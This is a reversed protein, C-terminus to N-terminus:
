FDFLKPTQPPNAAAAATMLPHRLRFKYLLSAREQKLIEGQTVTIGFGARRGFDIGQLTKAVLEAFLIRSKSKLLSYFLDETYPINATKAIDYIASEVATKYPDVFYIKSMHHPLSFWKVLDQKYNMDKRNLYDLVELPVRQLGHEQMLREMYLLEMQLPSTFEIEKAKKEQMRRKNIAPIVLKLIADLDGVDKVLLDTYQLGRWGAVSRTFDVIDNKMFNYYQLQNFDYSLKEDESLLRDETLILKETPKDAPIVFAPPVSHFSSIPILIDDDDGGGVDNLPIDNPVIVFDDGM